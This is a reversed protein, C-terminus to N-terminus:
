CITVRKEKMRKITASINQVSFEKCKTLDLEHLIGRMEIGTYGNASAFDTIKNFDWDPCPHTSFSLRPNKKKSEFSNVIFSSGFLVAPTQLLERSSSHGM